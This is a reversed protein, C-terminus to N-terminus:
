RRKRVLLVVTGAVFLVSVMVAWGNLQRCEGYMTYDKLLFKISPPSWFLSNGSVSDANTKVVTWPLNIRTHYKGESADSIFSVKSEFGKALENLQATMQSTVPVGLSDMVHLLFNDEVDQRNELVEFVRDKHVRMTDIWRAEVKQDRLTRLGLEYYEEFYAKTGYVDFIRDNLEGLFFDDAKSINKGEAPLRDIFAYDELTVYDDPKMAMRNLSHFTEAYHIYTYFWRFDKKFTSTVQFLTDNVAALDANAEDVTAFTRQFTTIWERDKESPTTDNKLRVEKRWGEDERLGFINRSSDKSEFIMVKDLAGDPHVTTETYVKHECSSLAILTAFLLLYLRTTTQM